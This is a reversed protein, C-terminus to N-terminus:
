DRLCWIKTVQYKDKADKAKATNLTKGTQLTDRIPYELEDLIALVVISIMMWLACDEMSIKM